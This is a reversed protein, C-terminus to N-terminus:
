DHVLRVPLRSNREDDRTNIERALWYSDMTVILSFADGLCATSTWYRWERLVTSSSARKYVLEPIFVAGAAEMDEWRGNLVFGNTAGTGAIYINLPNGDNIIPTFTCSEPIEWNDPLLIMGNVFREGDSDYITAASRLLAAKPRSFYLYEWENKSLTYWTGALPTNTNESGDANLHLGWECYKKVDDHANWGYDYNDSSNILADKFNLDNVFVRWAEYEEPQCEGGFNQIREVESSSITIGLGNDNALPGFGGTKLWTPLINYEPEAEPYDYMDYERWWVWCVDPFNLADTRRDFPEYCKQSADYPNQVGNSAWAFLDIVKDTGDGQNWSEKADVAYYDWQNQAFEWRRNTWNDGNKDAKFLLNGSAFWVKKTPSVSFKGPVYAASIISTNCSATAVIDTGALIEATITTTAGPASGFTVANSEGPLTASDKLTAVTSNGSTWSVVPVSWDGNRTYTVDATIKGTKGARGTLEGPSLTITAENVYVIFNDFKEPNQTSAAKVLAEGAGVAVLEGGVIEAVGTSPEVSWTIDANPILTGTNDFASASVGIREGKWLTVREDVPIDISWLSGPDAFNFDMKKGQRRAIHHWTGSKIQRKEVGGISVDVQVGKMKSYDGWPLPVNICTNGSSGVSPLKFTVENGTGAVPTSATHTLGSVEGDVIGDIKYTGTVHEMGLFTVKVQTAGAIESNPLTIRLLGGVHYFKLNDNKVPDNSAVMPMRAYDRLEDTTRSSLDYTTPYVVRLDSSSSYEKVASTSPFVAFNARRLTGDINLTVGGTSADTTGPNGESNVSVDADVYQDSVVGNQSTGSLWVAISDRLEPASSTSWRCFGTGDDVNVKTSSSEMTVSLRIGGEAPNDPGDYPQECAAVVALLACLASFLKISKM